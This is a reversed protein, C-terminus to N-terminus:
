FGAFEQGTEDLLQLGFAVLFEKFGNLCDLKLVPVSEALDPLLPFLVDSIGIVNENMGFFAPFFQGSV